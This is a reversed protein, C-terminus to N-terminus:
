RQRPEQGAPHRVELALSQLGADLRRCHAPKESAWTTLAVPRCPSTSSQPLAYPLAAFFVQARGIGGLNACNETLLLGEAHLAARFAGNPNRFGGEAEPRRAPIDDCSFDVAVHVFGARAIAKACGPSVQPANRWYEPKRNHISESHGTRLILIEREARNSLRAAVTVEDIVDLASADLVEAVGAFAHLPYDEIRLGGELRWGPSSVFSFGSGQWRYGFEQFEDGRHYSQSVFPYSDWLWHPEMLQSCDIVAM